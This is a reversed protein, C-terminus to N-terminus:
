MVFTHSDFTRERVRLFKGISKLISGHLKFMLRLLSSVDGTFQEADHRAENSREGSAHTMAQKAEFADLTEQDKRKM